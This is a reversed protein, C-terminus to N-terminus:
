LLIGVARHVDVESGFRRRALLRVPNRSLRADLKLDEEAEITRLLREEVLGPYQRIDLFYPSLSKLPPWGVSSCDSLLLFREVTERHAREGGQAHADGGSEENFASVDWLRSQAALMLVVNPNPNPSTEAAGQGALVSVALLALSTLRVM